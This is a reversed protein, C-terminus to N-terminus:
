VSGTNARMRPQAERIPELNMSSECSVECHYHLLHSANNPKNFVPSFNTCMCSSQCCCTTQHHATVSPATFAWSKHWWSSGSNTGGARAAAGYWSSCLLFSDYLIHPALISARWNAQQASTHECVPHKPVARALSSACPVNSAVASVAVRADSSSAVM